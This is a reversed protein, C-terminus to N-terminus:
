GELRFFVHRGIIACPQVGHSWSPKVGRTHYHDAGMTTDPLLGLVAREAIVLAHVFDSNNDTVNLITERNPDNKNWCSFQYPKQCVAFVDNGWWFGGCKKAHNVRNIIVNAVAAMGREGEGRAEGYITRALVDIAMDRMFREQSDIIEGLM